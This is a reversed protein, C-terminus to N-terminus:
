GRKTRKWPFAHAIVSLWQVLAEPEPKAAARTGPALADEEPSSGKWCCSMSRAPEWEVIVWKDVVLSVKAGGNEAMLLRRARALNESPFLPNLSSSKKSSLILEPNNQASRLAQDSAKAVIHQNRVGASMLATHAWPPPPLFYGWWVSLMCHAWLSRPSSGAPVIPFIVGPPCKVLSRPM